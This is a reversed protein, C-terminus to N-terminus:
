KKEGIRMNWAKIAEIIAEVEDDYFGHTHIGAFCNLCDVFGVYRYYPRYENEKVYVDFMEKEGCFPCEKIGIEGDYYKYTKM